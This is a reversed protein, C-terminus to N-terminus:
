TSLGTRSVGSRGMAICDIIKDGNLDSSCDLYYVPHASWHEWLIAGNKGDLATVGGQCPQTPKENFYIECLYPFPQEGNETQFGLIVDSIGDQNIDLTRIPAETSRKTITVNWLNTVRFSTCPRLLKHNESSSSSSFWPRFRDMPLPYLSVLLVTLGILGLLVLLAVIAYCYFVCKIRCPPHRNRLGEKCAKRRPAM